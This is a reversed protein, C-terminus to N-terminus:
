EVDGFNEEGELNMDQVNREEFGKVATFVKSFTKLFWNPSGLKPHEQGSKLTPRQFPVIARVLHDRRRGTGEASRDLAAPLGGFFGLHMGQLQRHYM